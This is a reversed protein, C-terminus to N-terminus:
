NLGMEFYHQNNTQIIIKTETTRVIMVQTEQFCIEILEPSIDVGALRRRMRSKLLYSVSSLTFPM